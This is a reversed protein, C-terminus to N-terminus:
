SIKMEQNRFGLSCHTAKIQRHMASLSETSSISGLEKTNMYKVFGKM